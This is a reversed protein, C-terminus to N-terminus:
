TSIAVLRKRGLVLQTDVRDNTIDSVKHNANLFIYVPTQVVSICQIVISYIMTKSFYRQVPQFLSCIWEGKDRARLSAAAETEM